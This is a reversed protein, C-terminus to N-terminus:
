RAKRGKPAPAPAPAPSAPEEAPVAPAPEEAQPEDKTETWGHALFNQYTPLHDSDVVASEDGRFMNIVPM